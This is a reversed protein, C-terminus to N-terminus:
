GIPALEEIDDEISTKVFPDDDITYHNVNYIRSEITGPIDTGRPLWPGLEYFNYAAQSGSPALDLPFINADLIDRGVADIYFTAFIEAPYYKGGGTTLWANM